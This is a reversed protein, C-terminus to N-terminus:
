ELNEPIRHALKENDIWLKLNDASIALKDLMDRIKKFDSYEDPTIKDDEAIDLLREQIIDIKHLANITEIAIHGLDKIEATRLHNGLVCGKCYYNRLQPKEYVKALIDIDDPHIEQNRKEIKELKDATIYSNLEDSKFVVEDRTMRLEKRLQLLYEGNISIDANIDM